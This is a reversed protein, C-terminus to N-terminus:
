HPSTRFEARTCFICVPQKDYFVFKKVSYITEPSFLIGSKLEKKRDFRLLNCPLGCPARGWM